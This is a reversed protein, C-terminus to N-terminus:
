QGESQNNKSPNKYKPLWERTELYHLVLKRMNLCANRDRNICGLRRHVRGDNKKIKMTYTKIAHKKRLRGNKDPLELNDGEEETKWHLKSTNYEDLNYVDKFSDVFKRKILKSKIM